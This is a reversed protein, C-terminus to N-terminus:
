SEDEARRLAQMLALCGRRHAHGLLSRPNLPGEYLVPGDASGKHLVYQCQELDRGLRAVLVFTHPDDGVAPEPEVPKPLSGPDIEIVGLRKNERTPYNHPPNGASKDEAHGEPASQRHDRKDHKAM